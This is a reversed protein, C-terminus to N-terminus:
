HPPSNPDHKHAHTHESSLPRRPFRSLYQHYHQPRDHDHSKGHKKAKKHM